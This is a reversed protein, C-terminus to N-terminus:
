SFLKSIDNYTVVVMLLMLFAFGIFHVMSEKRPDIPKGRLAEIGIFFLRSGDLAPIPLLNFVGL